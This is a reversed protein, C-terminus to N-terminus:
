TGSAYDEAGSAITLIAKDTRKRNHIARELQKTAVAQLTQGTAGPSFTLLKQRNIIPPNGLRIMTMDQQDATKFATSLVYNAM